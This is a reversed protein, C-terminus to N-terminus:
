QKVFSMSTKGNRNEAILYYYGSKLDAINWSYNKQMVSIKKFVNDARDTITLTTSTSVDLGNIKLISNAPNPFIKIKNIISINQTLNQKAGDYNLYRVLAFAQKGRNIVDANGLAIIKGDPQLLAANAYSFRKKDFNEFSTLLKGQNGFSKDLSGNKNYRALAFYSEKSIDDKSSGVAVIKGDPQVLLASTEDKNGFDTYIIGNTGFSNDVSGNLNFRILVFDETLGNIQLYGGLVIKGNAQITMANVSAYEVNNLSATGIGKKGFTSDLAGSSTIKLVIAKAEGFYQFAEGGVFMKGDPLLALSTAVYNYNAARLLYLGNGNFTSDLLGNSTFRAIIIASYNNTLDTHILSGSVIIKGDPQIAIGKQQIDNGKIGTFVIGNGGFSSDIIGRKTFRMVTLDHRDSGIAVGAAVIKGDNQIAISSILSGFDDIPFYSVGNHGFTHDTSGDPNCRVLTNILKFGSGGGAIIKGDSQLAAAELDQQNHHLDAVLQGNIGFSSDLEGDQSYLVSYNLYIAVFLLYFHKM